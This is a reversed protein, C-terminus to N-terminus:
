IEIMSFLFVALHFISKGEDPPQIEDEALLLRM